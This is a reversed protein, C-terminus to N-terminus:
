PVAIPAQPVHEAISVLRQVHRRLPRLGKADALREPLVMGFLATLIFETTEEASEDPRTMLRLLLLNTVGTAVESAPPWKRVQGGIQATGLVEVLFEPFPAIVRPDEEDDDNPPGGVRGTYENVASIFAVALSRHSRGLVALDAVHQQAVDLPSTGAEYQVRARLQREAVLPGFVHGILSYKSPFYNYATAVSVGARGAVDEMRTDLWGKAEFVGSAASLLAARTRSRKTRGARARAVTAPDDPKSEAFESTHIVRVAEPPLHIGNGALLELVEAILRPGNHAGDSAINLGFGGAADIWVEVDYVDPHAAAASKAVALPDPM